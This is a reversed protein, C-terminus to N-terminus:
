IIMRKSNSRLVHYFSDNRKNDLDGRNSYLFEVQDHIAQQISANMEVADNGTFRKNTFREAENIASNLLATIYSDQSSFTIGLGEKIEQLTPVSM